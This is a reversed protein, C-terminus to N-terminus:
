ETVIDSRRPTALRAHERRHARIDFGIKLAILLILGAIPAGITMVFWGGALIAIHLVVIRGYPQVMTEQATLKRYERKGIFNTVFSVGHSAALALAAYPADSTALVHRMAEPHFSGGGGGVSLGGGFLVFVFIGHVLCFMGYHFTFFAALFVKGGLGAARMAPSEAAIEPIRACLIKAITFLGIVVNELWFLFVVDFVRWGLFLVGAAPVLNAAILAVLSPTLRPALGKV